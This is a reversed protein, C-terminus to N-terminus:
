NTREQKFRILGAMVRPLISSLAEPRAQRNSKKKKSSATSYFIQAIEAMKVRPASHPDFLIEPLQILYKAGCVVGEGGQSKRLRDGRAKKM